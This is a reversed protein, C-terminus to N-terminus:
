NTVHLKLQQHYLTQNRQIIKYSGRLVSTLIAFNPIGLRYIRWWLWCCTATFVPNWIVCTAFCSTVVTQYCASITLSSGQKRSCIGLYLVINALHQFSRTCAPKITFFSEIVQKYTHLLILSRSWFRSESCPCDIWYTGGACLCPNWLEVGTQIEFDGFYRASDSFLFTSSSLPRLYQGVLASGRGM